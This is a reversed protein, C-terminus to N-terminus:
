IVVIAVVWAQSFWKCGSEEKGGEDKSEQGVSHDGM